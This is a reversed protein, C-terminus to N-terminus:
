LAIETLWASLLYQPRMLVGLVCVSIVDAFRSSAALVGYWGRIRSEQDHSTSDKTDRATTQAPSHPVENTFRESIELFSPPFGLFPLSKQASGSMKEQPKYTRVQCM